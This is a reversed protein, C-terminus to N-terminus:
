NVSKPGINEKGSEVAVSYDFGVKHPIHILIGM